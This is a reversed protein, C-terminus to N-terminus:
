NITESTKVRLVRSKYRPRTSGGSTPRTSGGYQSDNVIRNEPECTALFVESNLQYVTRRDLRTLARSIHGRKALHDLVSRLTRRNMHSLKALLRQGIHVLNTKRCQLAMTGYVKLDAGTIEPDYLVEYPIRAFQKPPGIM